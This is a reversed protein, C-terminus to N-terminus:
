SAAVAVHLSGATVRVERAVELTRECPAGSASRSSSQSRRSSSAAPSPRSSTASSASRITHPGGDVGGGRRTSPAYRTLDAALAQGAGGRDAFQGGTM